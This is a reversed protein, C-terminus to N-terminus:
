GLSDCVMMKVVRSFVLRYASRGWEGAGDVWTLHAPPTTYRSAADRRVSRSSLKWVRCSPRGCGRWAAYAGAPPDVRAVNQGKPALFSYPAGPCM